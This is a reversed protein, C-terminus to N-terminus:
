RTAKSSFILNKLIDLPITLFAQKLYQPHSLTDHVHSIYQWLLCAAAIDCAWLQLVSNYDSKCKM